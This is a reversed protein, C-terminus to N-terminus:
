NSENNLSSEQIARRASEDEPSFFLDDTYAGCARTIAIAEKVTPLSTNNEYSRLKEIDIDTMVSLQALSLNAKKRLSKIKLEPVSEFLM